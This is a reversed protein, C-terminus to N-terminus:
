RAVEALLHCTEIARHAVPADILDQVKRDMRGLPPPALVRDDSPGDDHSQDILRRAATGRRHDAVVACSKLVQVAGATGRVEGTEGILRFPVSYRRGEFSILGDIGVKRSVAVDFPIPM